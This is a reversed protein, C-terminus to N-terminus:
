RSDRSRKKGRRIEPSKINSKPRFAGCLNCKKRANPNAFTCKGCAWEEPQTKSGVPSEEQSTQIIEADQTSDIALLEPYTDSSSETESGSSYKGSPSSTEETVSAVIDENDSNDKSATVVEETQVDDSCAVSSDGGQHYADAESGSESDSEQSQMTAVAAVANGPNEAVATEEKETAEYKGETGDLETSSPSIQNPTEKRGFEETEDEIDNTNEAALCNNENTGDGNCDNAEQLEQLAQLEDLAKQDEEEQQRQQIKSWTVELSFIFSVSDCGQMAARFVPDDVTDTRHHHAWDRMNEEEPMGIQEQYDDSRENNFASTCEDQIEMSTTDNKGPDDEDREPDPKMTMLVPVLAQWKEVWCQQLRRSADAIEDHDPSWVKIVNSFIRNVDKSFSSVSKYAQAHGEPLSLRKQITALDMPQKVAKEYEEKTINYAIPDLPQLFHKADEEQMMEEVLKQCAVLKKPLVKMAELEANDQIIKCRECKLKDHTDSPTGTRLKFLNRLDKTSLSNVQEKDDVISQLGEKSLQRQFIKEEVTGTALFRYTFCRKKQGDRWCRAAAQKDVAPNWDPDFLVLRNGGILNLGCGGAKSSLLFAVLSSTPDNFEDVMKQRKKMTVSGDLRCFGWSNERCMRGILDLCTTYNSIIVIKDNGNGPRRMEKMLRYLVFMKGSWEPHVPGSNGRGGGESYPLYKSIGDAGPASFDKEDGDTYKIQKAAARRKGQQASGHTQDDEAVLSPHNCLKMLMQISGLCNVQKGDMVHQMDKASVLHQYMNHQIETLNCCVVQVLKPPLHQANLTNVRRLIFDNVITSMENQIDMMKRKQNESADPERGRLIPHLMNKNFQEQTGLVGPNTFNVMAFFETLDNQMPTGTLLVRRKVPLSDLARSTQNDNNKLRHAEDCVLLDCCDKYKTLRGVHTRLCEYSCILIQFINTKAFSDLDREIQKRDAEALALTKVAGPGLWKVFENDWNKVLSCPCVVIVRKATPRRDATIGTKLLTYILTVSQLTKGLGMDDALICGNGQYDKLGMVCQYMFSVGERQHPRLWKALIPPVFVNSASYKELPASKLITVTEEVGYEDMQVETVMSSPLGKSEGGQHPSQWVMLPEFPKDDKQEDDEDSSDETGSGDKSLRKQVFHLGKGARSLLRQMGGTSRRPGLSARKLAANEEGKYARRGLKPRQFPKLVGATGLSLGNMIPAREICMKRTGLTATPRRENISSTCSNNKLCNGSTTAPTM